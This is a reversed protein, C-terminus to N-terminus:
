IAHVVGALIAYRDWGRCYLNKLCVAFEPEVVAACRAPALARVVSQEIVQSGPIRLSSTTPHQHIPTPKFM